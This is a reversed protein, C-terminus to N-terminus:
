TELGLHGPRFLAWPNLKSSAAASLLLRELCCVSVQLDQLGVWVRNELKKVKVCLIRWSCSGRQNLVWRVPRVQFQTSRWMKFFDCTVQTQTHHRHPPGQEKSRIRHQPFRLGRCCFRCYKYGQSRFALSGGGGWGETHAQTYVLPQLGFWLSQLSQDVESEEGRREEGRREEGRREPITRVCSCSEYECCRPDM